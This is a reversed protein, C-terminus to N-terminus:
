ESPQLPGLIVESEQLLEEIAPPVHYDIRVIGAQTVQFVVSNVQDPLLFAIGYEGAPYNEDPNASPPTRFVAYLQADGIGPWASFESRRMHHGESGLIPLVEVLTGDAEGPLCKPPGGLGEATTCPLASFQVLALLEETSGSSIASTLADLHPVAAQGPSAPAQPSCAAVLSLLTLVLLYFKLSKIALM